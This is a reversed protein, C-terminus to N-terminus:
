MYGKEKLRIYVECDSLSGQYVQGEVYAKSGDSLYGEVIEIVEYTFDKMYEVKYKKM